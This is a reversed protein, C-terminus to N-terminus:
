ITEQRIEAEKKVPKNLQTVRQTENLIRNLRPIYSQKSRSSILHFYTIKLINQMLKQMTM